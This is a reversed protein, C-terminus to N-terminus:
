IIIFLQVVKLGWAQALRACARHINILIIVFLTLSQKGQFALRSCFNM